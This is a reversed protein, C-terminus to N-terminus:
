KDNAFLKLRSDFENRHYKVEELTFGTKKLANEYANEDQQELETKWQELKKKWDAIDDKFMGKIEKMSLLDRYMKITGLGAYTNIIRKQPELSTELNILITEEFDGYYGYPFTKKYKWYEDMTREKVLKEFLEKQKALAEDIDNILKLMESYRKNDEDPNLNFYNELCIKAKHYNKISFYAKTKLHLIVPASSELLQETENLLRICKIYNEDEYAETAAMFKAKGKIEDSQAYIMNSWCFLLLILILKEKKAMIKIMIKM